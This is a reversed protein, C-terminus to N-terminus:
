FVEVFSVFGGWHCKRLHESRSTYVAPCLLLLEMLTSDVSNFMLPSFLALNELQLRQYKCYQDFVFSVTLYNLILHEQSNM